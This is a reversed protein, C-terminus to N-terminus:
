GGFNITILVAVALTLYFLATSASLTASLWDGSKHYQKTDLSFDIDVENMQRVDNYLKRYRREINLYYADLGWFVVVPIYAVLFFDYNADKAALAFIGAILTVAWAKLLFANAAMRTITLQIFELHKIKHETAAM